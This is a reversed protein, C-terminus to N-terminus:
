TDADAYLTTELYEELLGHATELVAEDGLVVWRTRAGDIITLLMTATREPDVPAFVGREIGDEIMAEFLDLVYVDNTRFQERYVENHAAQSRLELMATQFAEHDDPGYVLADITERLREAPDDNETVAVQTEFRAILYGLFSSLLDEKSGYHYFILSKSKEFEDAISQVTLDVAGHRCLARYTARMIAEHETGTGDEAGDASGAEDTTDGM